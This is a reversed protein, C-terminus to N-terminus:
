SHAAKHLHVNQGGIRRGVGVSVVETTGFGGGDAAYRPHANGALGELPGDACVISEAGGQRSVQALTSLAHAVLHSLM